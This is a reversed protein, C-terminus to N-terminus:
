IASPALLCGSFCPTPQHATDCTESCNALRNALISLGCGSTGRSTLFAHHTRPVAPTSASAMCRRSLLVASSSAPVAARKRHLQGPWTSVKPVQAPMCAFSQGPPPGTAPSQHPSCPPPRFIADSGHHATGAAPQQEVPGLCAPVQRALLPPPGGWGTPWTHHSCWLCAHNPAARNTHDPVCVVSTSAHM